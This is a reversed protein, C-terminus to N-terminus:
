NDVRGFFKTVARSENASRIAAMPDALVIRTYQFRAYLRELVKSLEQDSLVLRPIEKYKAM